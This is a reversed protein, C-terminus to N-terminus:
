PSEHGCAMAHEVAIMLPPMNIAGQQAERQPLPQRPGPHLPGSVGNSHAGLRGANELPDHKKPGRPTKLPKMQGSSAGVVTTRALM